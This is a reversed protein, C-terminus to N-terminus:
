RRAFQFHMWDFDKERGLSYGGEDEVIRWFADYEPRAFRATKKDMKLANKDPDLDIAIGWAHMSKKSGGVHAWNNYCGGYIDLGLEQEKELAYEAM